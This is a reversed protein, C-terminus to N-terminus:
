KGRRDLIENIRQSRDYTDLFRTNNLDVGKLYLFLAVDIEKPHPTISYDVNRVLFPSGTSSETLHQYYHLHEELRMLAIEKAIVEREGPLFDDLNVYGITISSIAGNSGPTFSLKGGAIDDNRKIFAARVKEPILPHNTIEAGILRYGRSLGTVRIAEEFKGEKMFAINDAIIRELMKTDHFAESEPSGKKFIKVARGKLVHRMFAKYFDAKQDDAFVDNLVSEIYDRNDSPIESLTIYGM